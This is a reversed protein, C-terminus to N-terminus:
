QFLYQFLLDEKGESIGKRRGAIGASHGEEEHGALAGWNYM